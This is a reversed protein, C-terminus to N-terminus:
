DNESDTSDDSNEEEDSETDEDDEDAGSESEDDSVYHDMELFAEDSDFPIPLVGLRRALQLDITLIGSGKDDKMLLLNKQNQATGVDLSHLFSAWTSDDRFESSNWNKLKGIRKLTRAEDVQDLAVEADLLTTELGFAASKNPDPFFTIYCHGPILTLQSEIGIKRLLSVFLVSGDVCNAQQNNITDELMRVHQSVVSDSEAATATINSYRVDRRILLDWIAYVQRVVEGPSKSQYGSFSDVVGIELAERLLKDLFPHQENVYAALTFSLDVSESERLVSIPCDHISRITMPATIEQKLGDGIQVRYTVTAPTAQKCRSLREYRYRIKPLVCYTEGKRPLSGVYKSEEWYPECQVSVEISQNDKTCEVMVGFLGNPDGLEQEDRETKDEKMSATAIVYSPFLQNEWGSVLALDGANANSSSFISQGILVAAIAAFAFYHRKNM